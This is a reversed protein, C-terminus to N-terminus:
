EMAELSKAAEELSSYFEEGFRHILPERLFKYVPVKEKKGKEFAASCIDWRHLNIVITGNSFTSVRIPYLWCSIPKKFKSKGCYYAREVACLCNMQNDFSTYACKENNILPTVLDGDRDVVGFGQMEIVDRGQPTMYDKYNEYEFKFTKEERKKIPAGSDGIICCCGKCVAYDCMFYETFIESSVLHKGIEFIFLKDKGM